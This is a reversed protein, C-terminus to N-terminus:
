GNNGAVPRQLAEILAELSVRRAAEPPNLQFLSGEVDPNIDVETYHLELRFHASPVDLELEYPVEVGDAARYDGFRAAFAGGAGETRGELAMVRLSGPELELRHQSPGPGNCRVLLRDDAARYAVEGSVVCPPPRGLLVGVLGSMPLTGGTLRDMLREPQRTQFFTNDSYPLYLSAERERLGLYAVPPGIVANLAAWLERPGRAVLEGGLKTTKEATVFKVKFQARMALAGHTTALKKAVEDPTPVPRPQSPAM